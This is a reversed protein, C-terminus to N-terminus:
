AGVGISISRRAAWYPKFGSVVAPPDYGRVIPINVRQDLAGRGATYLTLIESETLARQFLAIDDMQGKFFQSGATAAFHLNPNVNAVSAPVSSTRHARRVGDVFISASTSRVFTCCVHHWLNDDVVFTGTGTVQNADFSAPNSQYLFQLCGQVNIASDGSSTNGCTVSWARLAAVSYRSILGTNSNTDAPNWRLWFNVSFNTDAFAYIPNTGAGVFDDTGDFSLALGSGSAQWTPGNTLTGHNGRVSDILTNGTTGRSPRWYGLLISRIAEYRYRGLM